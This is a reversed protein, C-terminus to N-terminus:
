GMFAELEHSDGKGENRLGELRAQEASLKQEIVLLWWVDVVLSTLGHFQNNLSGTCPALSSLPRIRPVLPARVKDLEIAPLLRKEFLLKLRIFLPGVVANSLWIRRWLVTLMVPESAARHLM